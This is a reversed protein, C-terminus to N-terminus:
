RGGHVWWRLWPTKIVPGVQVERTVDVGVAHQEVLLRADHQDLDRPVEERARARLEVLVIDCLAKVRNKASGIQAIMLNAKASEDVAAMLSALEILAWERFLEATISQALREAEMALGHAVEGHGFALYSHATSVLTTLREHPAEILAVTVEAFDPRGAELQGEAVARLAKDRLVADPVQAKIPGVHDTHEGNSRPM